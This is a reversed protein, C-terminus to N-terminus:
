EDDGGDVAQMAGFAAAQKAMAETREAELDKLAKAPDTVFPVQALLLGKPVINELLGVMQAAELANSPLSRKFVIEVDKPNIQQKGKVALFNSFILLREYLAERFWREKVMVLQELGFLKYKMAVGSANSAFNEDTLDPIMSFKHIDDKLNKRLIDAGSGDSPKALYEAKATSDPLMLLKDQRLAQGATRGKIVDGNDDTINPENEIRAGTIVLLAQVLQENDNLRDSQLKDYANILTLVAEFDGSEDDNNFYEVMPVRGFYHPTETALTADLAEVLTPGHYVTEAADTYVIVDYGAPKGSVDYTQYYRVGLMAKNEVTNDYVVFASRPDLASTKVQSKEDAYVLEVAKGYLSADKALESDVSDVRASKYADLLDDLKTESQYNVPTGVLYGAAIAVIYRPYSHVLRNNPLGNLMTRKLIDADGKYARYLMDMRQLGKQHEAICDKILDKKGLHERDRIIM